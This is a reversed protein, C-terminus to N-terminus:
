EKILRLSHEEIQVIYLGRKLSSIDVLKGKSKLLHKGELSYINIETQTKAGIIYLLDGAPNPAIRFGTEIAFEESKRSNSSVSTYKWQTNDGTWSLPGIRMNSIGDPKVHLWQTHAKNELRSWTNDVRIWKWQVLDSTNSAEFMSVNEGDSSGLKEGTARLVLYFYDNSTPVQEWQVWNGTNGVGKTTVGNSDTLRKGSSKHDIYLFSSTPIVCNSTNVSPNNSVKKTTGDYPRVQYIYNNNEQVDTDTFSNQVVTGLNTYTTAGNAKRRVIYQTACPIASWSLQIESCSNVTASLDTIDQIGNCPSPSEEGTYETPATGNGTQGYGKVVSLQNGEQLMQSIESRLSTVTASNETYGNQGYLNTWEYPDNEIDYLQSNNGNDILRWKNTKVIQTGSYSMFIPKDWANDNVDRLLPSIDNGQIDSKEEIGCLAVLTPYLDQLSVVKTCKKGNDAASPDYIIMTTRHAIDFVAHKSFRDKEGLHWGHDGIFVVITNNKHVSNELADLMIGVNYDAYAMNALYARLADKYKGDAQVQEYTERGNYNTPVDEDDNALYGKPYPLNNPSFMDFFQKHANWPLHPRFLGVAAFFPKNGQYSQIWNATANALKTDNADELKFEGASWKFLADTPSAWQYSAGGPSGTGKKYLEDWNNPDAKENNMNGPHYLKGGGFLHYGERQFHENMTIVKEFGSIDRIYGGSNNDIGSTSPRIGSWIANRSPNCVPSSAHADTFLVGKDALADLNPTIADPYYGTKNLWNNFDDAMIFLVNKQQANATNSVAFSFFLLLIIQM